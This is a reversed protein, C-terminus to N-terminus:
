RRAKTEERSPEQANCTLREVSSKKSRLIVLDVMEGRLGRVNDVNLATEDALDMLMEM